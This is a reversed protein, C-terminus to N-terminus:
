ITYHMLSFLLHESKCNDESHRKTIFLKMIYSDIKKQKDNQRKVKFFRNLMWIRSRILWLSSFIARGRNKALFYCLDNKNKSSWFNKPTGNYLHHRKSQRLWVSMPDSNCLIWQWDTARGNHFFALSLYLLKLQFATPHKGWKKESCINYVAEFYIYESNRQGDNLRQLTVAYCCSAASGWARPEQHKQPRGRSRNPM